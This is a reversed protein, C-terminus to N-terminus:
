RAKKSQKGTDAVSVECVRCFSNSNAPDKPVIRSAPIVGSNGTLIEDVQKEFQTKSMAYMGGRAGEFRCNWAALAQGYRIADSVQGETKASFGAFGEGAVKSLFGATCWDGAGATDRLEDVPLSKLEVWGTARNGTRRHRYRLGADGLTEIVLRPSNEVDTEPLESMREHSYKVIHAVEWAQRFLMPNGVSCPEFVILAGAKAASRALVIAGASLRDFFFVKAKGIKSAINEAVTALEPKYGPFPAGCETCRWSFSHKPHGNADVRIREVIVPTSGDAEVRIFRESVRWRRLDALLLDSANGIGLRAVPQATWGLYRMAILVNGCTGGAWYRIPITSDASVVADLALLGTGVITPNSSTKNRQTNKTM